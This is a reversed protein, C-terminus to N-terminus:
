RRRKLVTLLLRENCIKGIVPILDCVEPTPLLWQGITLNNRSKILCFELMPNSYTPLDTSGEDGTARTRNGEGSKIKSCNVDISIPIFYTM